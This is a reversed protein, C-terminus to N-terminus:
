QEGEYTYDTDIAWNYPNFGYEQFIKRSALELLVDEIDAELRDDDPTRDCYVVTNLVMHDCTISVYYVHHEGM